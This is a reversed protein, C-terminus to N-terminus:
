SVASYAWSAAVGYGELVNIEYTTNAEVAFDDPMTIGTMTLTTPTNGSTFRFVYPGGTVPCTITLASMEPWIYFKNEVLTQSTDSSQKTVITTVDEKGGGLEQLAAEVTDTTFYGGADSIAKTQMTALAAALGVGDPLFVTQEVNNEDLYEISVGEVGNDTVVSQATINRGNIKAGPLTVAGTMGNVSAVAGGGGGGGGSADGLLAKLFLLDHLDM